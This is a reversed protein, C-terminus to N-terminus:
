AASKGGVDEANKPRLRRYARDTLLEVPAHDDTWPRVDPEVRFPRVRAFLSWSQRLARPIRSSSYRTPDIPVAPGGFLLHSALGDFVPGPLIQARDFAALWTAGIGDLLRSHGAPAYVNLVALGGPALHARALEFYEVTALHDPISPQRYADLIILDFKERSARLWIRGDAAVTTLRSRDLDLFRDAVSIVEPDLEIGTIALDPLLPAMVRIMLNSVTGGALGVILVDLRGDDPQPFLSTLAMWDWYDNTAYDPEILWSHIAWGENLQLWRVRRQPSDDAVIRIRQLGSDRDYLIQTGPVEPLRTAEPVLLTSAACLVAAAIAAKNRGSGLALLGGAATLVSAAGLLLFTARLGLVPVWWLAPLLIGLVSGLSGLAYLNGADLGATTRDRITARLVSPAVMALVACPIAFLLLVFSLRSWFEFGSLGVGVLATRLGHPVLVGLAAGVAGGVFLALLPLANGPKRDAMWGGIPYGVSLAGIVSAIIAAWVSLSSGFHPALLRGLAMEIGTITFGAVFTAVFLWIRVSSAARVESERQKARRSSARKSM